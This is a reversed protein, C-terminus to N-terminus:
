RRRLCGPPSPRWWPGNSRVSSCRNPGPATMGNPGGTSTSTTEPGGIRGRRAWVAIRERVGAPRKAPSPPVLRSRSTRARRPWTSPFGVAVWHRRGRYLCPRSQTESRASRSIQGDPRRQLWWFECARGSRRPEEHRLASTPECRVAGWFHGWIGRVAAAQRRSPPSIRRRARAALPAGPGLRVGSEASLCLRCRSCASTQLDVMGSREAPRSASARDVPCAVALM